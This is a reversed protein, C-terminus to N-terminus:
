FSAEPLGMVVDSGAMAAKRYAAIRPMVHAAYFEVTQLKAAAFAADDAAAGRTIALAARASQWGGVLIGALLVMNVAAAASAHPNKGGSSLLWDLAEELEDAGDAVAARIAGLRSDGALDSDLARIEVLLERLGKGEDALIKRGVFDIAQIGTTGEYITLIRADRLHQAAGTEEIFGMGGHIQVGLSTIEQATETMWAKVVPTLLALRSTAAARDSADAAGHQHDSAAATVYAVARMAEIQSKMLMLMRRVDAHRIISVSGKEGPIRGQKRELAYSRALQYARESIALGQIGVEVRAHNMMTFMGALGKNEDGVLYGIAGENEGFSMVCTPSGHIGLKHEISAVHVDNRQGLSGDENVLFKPVLFMSVGRVGDPADDLRALVLHVINESFSQDGWTIFIKSGTIRYAGGEPVAKTAIGALDSGAQPETLNMTGTWVGSTMKPLYTSQLESSGHAAIAIMASSTLMPQLSFSLCASQWSEFAAAAVVEPLGMGGFEPSFALGQWGNAAFQRYADAFGPAVVVNRDEVRCGDRDGPVNIPGLIDAAFKAAEEVVQDVVDNDFEAYASLRLVDELGAIEHLVFLMDQVPPKYDSM